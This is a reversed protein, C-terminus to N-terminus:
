ELIWSMIGESPYYYNSFFECYGMKNECSLGFGQAVCYNKMDRALQLLIRGRSRAGQLLSRSRTTTVGFAFCALAKRGEKGREEKRGKRECVSALNPFSFPCCLRFNVARKASEESQLVLLFQARFFCPVVPRTLFAGCKRLHHQM